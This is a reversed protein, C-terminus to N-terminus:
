RHCGPFLADASGDKLPFRAGSWGSEVLPSRIRYKRSKLLYDRFAAYIREVTLCPIVLLFLSSQSLLRRKKGLPWKPQGDLQLQFTEAKRRITGRQLAPLVGPWLWGGQSLGSMKEHYNGGKPYVPCKRGM